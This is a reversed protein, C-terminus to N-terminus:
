QENRNINLVIKGRPYPRLGDLMEHATVASELPLVTSVRTVLQGADILQTIADLCTTTTNVLFFSGKVGYRELLTKDPPAVSSILTGGSKLVALSESQLAGGAADVVSDVVGLQPGIREVRYDLVRDAGLDKMRSADDSGIVALVYAGLRHALQVAFSGVNGAAGLILVRHGRAVKAFDHLMQWATVAIVPVSAAEIFSLHRPKLSIMGADAAAFEAYGGIFRCNTVGYVEDGEALHEIRDGRTIVVGAIDSGLTLPLPQPLASRGSRIWADWPGVGAASVRIVVQDPAAMPHAIDEYALVEPGGFRHVRIAKM